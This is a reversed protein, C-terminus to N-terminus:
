MGSFGPGKGPNERTKGSTRPNFLGSTRTSKQVQNFKDSKLQQLETDFSDMLDKNQDEPIGSVRMRRVEQMRSLKELPSSTKSGGDPPISEDRRSLKEQIERHKQIHSASRANLAERRQKLQNYKEQQTALIEPGVVEGNNQVPPKQSNRGTPNIRNESVPVPDKREKIVPTPKRENIERVERRKELQRPQPVMAVTDFAVPKSDQVEEINVSPTNTIPLKEGTKMLDKQREEFKKRLQLIHNEPKFQLTEEAQEAKAPSIAPNTFVPKQEKLVPRQTTILQEERTSEQIMRKRAAALKELPTLTRTNVAPNEPPLIRTSVGPSVSPLIQTNVAPIEGSPFKEEEQRVATNEGNNEEYEPADEPEPEEEDEDPQLFVSKLKKVAKDVPIEAEFSRREGTASVTSAPYRYGQNGPLVLNATYQADPLGPVYYPSMRNESDRVYYDMQELQASTLKSVTIEYAIQGIIPLKLVKGASAKGGMWMLFFIIGSLGLLFITFVMISVVGCSLQREINPTEQAINSVNRNFFILYMLLMSIISVVTTVGGLYISQLAHFLLFPNDKKQSLLVWPSVVPWLLYCSGAIMKEDETLPPILQENPDYRNVTM